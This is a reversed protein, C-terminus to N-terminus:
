QPEIRRNIGSNQDKIANQLSTNFVISNAEAQANGTVQFVDAPININDNAPAVWGATRVTGGNSISLSADAPLAVNANGNGTNFLARGDASYVVLNGDVQYATFAGPQGGTGSNFTVALGTPGNDRYGVLNGDAQQILVSSGDQSTIYQGPQLTGGPPLSTGLNQPGFKQSIAGSVEPTPKNSVFDNPTALRANSIPTSM